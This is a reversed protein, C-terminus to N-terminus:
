PEGSEGAQNDLSRHASAWSASLRALGPIPLHRAFLQLMEIIEQRELVFLIVGYVVSFVLAKIGGTWWDSGGVGPIEIAGYGLALGLVLALAPVVFLRKVSFDVFIRAQWLMLAIGVVLMLDVALAVGAIGFPFGLAFLGVVLVVLQVTRAHVIRSPEGVAIFLDSITVKIPDFLTFVLMLRFTGLMPLWKDTLVLRIFEPAILALLGALFFGTRVLFANTRFFAQSLRKRQGKLEAYTGGAVTNLPVALIQRPYTAFTYARSYFGMPGAGLFIGTWLDDVENLAKLLGQAMFTRSGFRLFYRVVPQSWALRPRWVPRWLYLLLVSLVLTVVDTALLAWLTAGKWALVVAVIASLTTNAVQLLALRRHIVRRTLILKPTQALEVGFNIAVLALVAVRIDGSTFLWAGAALLIAWATTFLLKLTFHVAASQQEDESEVARHLFAGAMGFNAATLSLGVLSGAWAYVGFTEVPLLRSLLIMRAGQVVMQILSAFVNWGASTLSRKALTM